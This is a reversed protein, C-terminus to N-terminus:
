VRFFSLFALVGVTFDNLCKSTRWRHYLKGFNRIDFTGKKLLLNSSSCVAIVVNVGPITAMDSAQCVWASM